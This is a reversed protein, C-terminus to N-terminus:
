QADHILMTLERHLLEDDALNLEILRKLYTISDIDIHRCKLGIHDAEIHCVVVEMKIEIDSQPLTFRLIADNNTCGTLADCKNILAGHLSIDLLKCPYQHDNFIVQADTSFLVRSFQRRNQM